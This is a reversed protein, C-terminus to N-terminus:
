VFSALIGGEFCPSGLRGMIVEGRAIALHYTLRAAASVPSIEEERRGRRRVILHCFDQNRASTRSEVVRFLWSAASVSSYTIARQLKLSDGLSHGPGEDGEM